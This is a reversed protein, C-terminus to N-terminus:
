NRQVCRHILTNSDLELRIVSLIVSRIVQFRTWCLSRPYPTSQLLIKHDYTMSASASSHDWESFEYRMLSVPTECLVCHVRGTDLVHIYRIHTTWHDSRIRAVHKTLWMIQTINRSTKIQRPTQRFCKLFEVRVLAMNKRTQIQVPHLVLFSLLRHTWVDHLNPCVVDLCDPVSSCYSESPM